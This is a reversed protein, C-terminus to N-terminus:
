INGTMLYHLVIWSNEGYVWEYTRNSSVSIQHFHILHILTRTRAGSRENDNCWIDLNKHRLQTKRYNQSSQEDEMNFKIKKIKKQFRVNKQGRKGM